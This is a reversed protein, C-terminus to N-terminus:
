LAANYIYIVQARPLKLSCPMCFIEQHAIYFAASVGSCQVCRSGGPDWGLIRLAAPWTFSRGKLLQWLEPDPEGEALIQNLAYLDPSKTAIKRVKLSDVIQLEKKEILRVHVLNGPELHAALKSTIKRTSTAKGTLKGFKETFFSVRSDFDRHPERDLIIAQAVYEHM